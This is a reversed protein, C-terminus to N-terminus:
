ESVEELAQLAAALKVVAVAASKVRPDSKDMRVFVRAASMRAMEAHHRAATVDARIFQAARRESREAFNVEFLTAESM